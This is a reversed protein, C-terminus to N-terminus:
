QLVPSALKMEVLEGNLTVGGTTPVLVSNVYVSYQSINPVYGIALPTDYTLTIQKGNIVGNSLAPLVSSNV